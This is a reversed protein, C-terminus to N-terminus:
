GQGHGVEPLTPLDDRSVDAAVIKGFRALAFGAAFSAGIFVAPQQRAFTRVQGFLATVDNERLSTALTSLEAAGREIAGAIWDQQGSFQKGSKHVADALGDLQDAFGAKQGEVAGVAKDKVQDVLTSAKDAAQGAVAKAQDTVGTTSSTTGSPSGQPTSTPFSTPRDTPDQM